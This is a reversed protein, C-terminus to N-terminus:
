LISFSPLGGRSQYLAIQHSLLALCCRLPWCKPFVSFISCRWLLDFCLRSLCLGFPLFALVRPSVGRNQHRAIHHFSLALSLRLSGVDM